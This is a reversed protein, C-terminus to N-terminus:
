NKSDRKELYAKREVISMNKLLAQEAEATLKPEAGEVKGHHQAGEAGPVRKRLEAITENATVLDAAATDHKATIDTLSTRASDRETTVSALNDNAATLDANAQNLNALAAEIADLQEANLSVFGESDSEFSAVALLAAMLVYNKMESSKKNNSPKSNSAPNSKQSNKIQALETVRDIAQNLTGIKDVFIGMVDKAFFMKGTLHEETVNPRAKKVVRHFEEALPDLQLKRYDDYNGARLDKFMKTKDPSLSSEILHFKSGEREQAPIHDWFNLLVGISGVESFNDNAWVETAGILGWVGASALTGSIFTLVPKSANNVINALDNTGDVTGGPTDGFAIVGSVNPHNLAKTIREGITTTGVMGCPGDSKMMPGSVYIIAVSGKPMNDYNTDRSVLVGTIGASTIIRDSEFAQIQDNNFVGGKFLAPIISEYANIAFLPDVAWKGNLIASVLAYNM